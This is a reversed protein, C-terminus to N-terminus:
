SSKGYAIGAARRYVNRVNGPVKNNRLFREGEALGGRYTKHRKMMNNIHFMIFRTTRPDANSARLYNEVGGIGRGFNQPKNAAARAQNAVRQQSTAANSLQAAASARKLNIAAEKEMYSISGPTLKDREIALQAETKRAQLQVRARDLGLRAIDTEVRRQAINLNGRKIDLEGQDIGLRAAALQREFGRQEAASEAEAQAEELASRTEFLKAYRTAGLDEIQGGLELDEAQWGTRAANTRELLDRLAGTQETTGEWNAFNINAQATNEAGARGAQLIGALGQGQVGALGQLFASDQGGRAQGETTGGGMGAVQAQTASNASQYAERIRDALATTNASVGAIATDYAQTVPARAAQMRSSLASYLGQVNQTYAQTKTEDARTGTEFATRAATRKRNAANIQPDIEASVALGARKVNPDHAVLAGQDVLRQAQALTMRGTAVQRGLDEAQRTGGAGFKTHSQRSLLTPTHGQQKYYDAVRRLDTRRNRDAQVVRRANKPNYKVYDAWRQATTKAM